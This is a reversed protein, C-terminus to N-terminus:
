SAAEQHEQSVLHQYREIDANILKKRYETKLTCVPLSKRVRKMRDEGKAADAMLSRSGKPEQERMAAGANNKYILGAAVQEEM